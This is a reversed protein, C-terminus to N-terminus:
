KYYNDDDSDSDLDSDDTRYLYPNDDLNISEDFDTELEDGKDLAGPESNPSTSMAVELIYQLCGLVTPLKGDM